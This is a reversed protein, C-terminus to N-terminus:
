QSSLFYSEVEIQTDGGQSLNAKKIIMLRSNREIASIFNIFNANSLKVQLGFNITGLPLVNPNIQKAAKAINFNTGKYILGNIQYIGNLSAILEETKPEEPIWLNLIDKQDIFFKLNTNKSLSDRLEELKAIEKEKNKLANLKKSLDIVEQYRPYLDYILFYFVFIILVIPLIRILFNM